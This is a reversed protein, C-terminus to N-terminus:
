LPTRTALTCGIHGSTLKHKNTTASPSSGLARNACAHHPSRGSSCVVSSEDIAVHHALPLAALHLVRARRSQDQAKLSWWPFTVVLPVWALPAAAIAFCAPGEPDAKQGRDVGKGDPLDAFTRRYTHRPFQGWCLIAGVASHLQGQADDRAHVAM